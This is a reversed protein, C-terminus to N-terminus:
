EVTIKGQASPHQKISYSYVGPKSFTHSWSEDEGLDTSEFSGDAAVITHGGPMAEMNHFVVTDGVAVKIDDPYVAAHGGHVMTEGAYGPSASVGLAALFGLSIAKCMTSDEALDYSCITQELQSSIDAELV